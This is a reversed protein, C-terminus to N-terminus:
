RLWDENGDMPRWHPFIPKHLFGLCSYLSTTCAPNTSPPRGRRGIHAGLSTCSSTCWGRFLARATEKM